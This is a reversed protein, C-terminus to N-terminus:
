LGLGLGITLNSLNNYGFNVSIKKSLRYGIFGGYLIDITNPLKIHETGVNTENPNYFIKGITAGFIIYETQYGLVAYPGWAFDQYFVEQSEETFASQTNNDVYVIAGLGYRINSESVISLDASLTKEIGYNMTFHVTSERNSCSQSHISLSTLLILLLNLFKSKM